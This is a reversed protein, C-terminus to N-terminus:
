IEHLISIFEIPPTTAATLIFHIAIKNTNNKYVFIKTKNKRNSRSETGNWNLTEYKWSLFTFDIGKQIYPFM